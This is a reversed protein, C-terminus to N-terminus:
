DIKFYNKQKNEIHSILYGLNKAYLADPYNATLSVGLEKELEMLIEVQDLSDAVLECLTVDPTVVTSDIGLLDSIKHLVVNTIYENSSM